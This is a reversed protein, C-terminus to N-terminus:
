SDDIVFLIDLSPQGPIKMAVGTETIVVAESDVGQERAKDLLLQEPFKITVGTETIVIADPDLGQAEAKNKFQQLQRLMREDQQSQYSEEVAANGNAAMIPLSMFVIMKIFFKM